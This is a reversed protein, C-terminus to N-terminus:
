RNNDIGQQAGFRMRRLQRATDYKTRTIEPLLPLIHPPVSVDYTNMKLWELAEQAEPNSSNQLKTELKDLQANFDDTGRTKDAIEKWQYYIREKFSMRSLQEPTKPKAWPEDMLVVSRAIAAEKRIDFFERTVATRVVDDLELQNSKAYTIWQNVTKIDGAVEVPLTGLRNIEQQENAKLQRLKGTTGRTREMGRALEKRGLLNKVTQQTVVGRESGVIPLEKNTKPEEWDKTLELAVDDKTIYTSTSVGVFEPAVAGVVKLFEQWAARPESEELGLAAAEEPSVMPSTYNDWADHLAEVMMPMTLQYWFSDQQTIPKNMDDLIDADEGFFGRGTAYQTAMGGTPSFKSRMFRLLTDKMEGTSRWAPDVIQGTATEREAIVSMFARALPGLGIFIDYYSEGVRIKGFNTHRPNIEADVGPILYKCALLIQASMGLWAVLVRASESMVAEIPTKGVARAASIGSPFLMIRSTLFRPSWFMINAADLLGQSLTGERMEGWLRGRGTSNNIWNAVSRLREIDTMDKGWGAPHKVDSTIDLKRGLTKELNRWANDMQDVRAKNLFLTYSRESPRVWPVYKGWNSMFAEEKGYGGIKYDMESIALGLDKRYISMNPHTMIRNYVLKAADENGPLLLKFSLNTAELWGKPDAYLYLLGQRGIASNDVSAKLSKPLSAVERIYEGPTISGANSLFSLQKSLRSVTAEPVGFTKLLRKILNATTNSRRIMLERSFEPGFVEDMYRIANRSTPMVGRYWLDVFTEGMELFEYIGAITDHFPRQNYAWNPLVKTKFGQRKPFAKDLVKMIEEDIFAKRLEDDDVKDLKRLWAQYNQETAGDFVKKVQQVGLSRIKTLANIQDPTMNTGRGTLRVYEDDYAKWFWNLFGTDGTMGMLKDAKELKSDKIRKLKIGKPRKQGYTLAPTDVGTIVNRLGRPTGDAIEGFVSDPTQKLLRQGKIFKKDWGINTGKEKFVKQLIGGGEARNENVKSKLKTQINMPLKQIAKQANIAVNRIERYRGAELPDERKAYTEVLGYTKKTKESLFKEPVGFRSLFRPARVNKIGVIAERWTLIDDMKTLGKKPEPVGPKPLGPEKVLPKTPKRKVFEKSFPKRDPRIQFDRNFFKKPSPDYDAKRFGREAIEETRLPRGLAVELPEPRRRMAPTWVGSPEVRVGLRKAVDSPREFEKSFPEPTKPPDRKIFEKSFPEEDRRVLFEKNFNGAKPTTTKLAKVGKVGAKIGKVGLGIGKIMGKGTAWDLPNLISVGMQEYWPRAEFQKEGIRFYEEIAKFNEKSFTGYQQQIAKGKKSHESLLRATEDGREDGVFPVYKSAGAWIMESLGQLGVDYAFQAGQKVRDGATPGRKEKIPEKVQQLQEASPRGM